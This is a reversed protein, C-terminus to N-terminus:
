GDRADEELGARMRQAIEILDLGAPTLESQLQSATGAKSQRQLQLIYSARHLLDDDVFRVFWQPCWPWLFRARTWVDGLNAYRFKQRAKNPVDVDRWDLSGAEHLHADVSFAGADQHVPKQGCGRM